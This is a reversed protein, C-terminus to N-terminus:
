FLKIVDKVAIIIMFGFMLVVGVMQCYEEVKKPAPRRFIWEYLSFLIHGGDLPLIPILNFVGLNMSIVIFLYLLTYFSTKAATTIAQTAGIPGSVSSLAFRGTLMGTLSDWVMKVSSLSRYWSQKVINLFSTEERYVKFDPEGFAAGEESFALFMVDYIPVTEGNRIVTMDLMVVQLKEEGYEVVQNGQMSIEYVVEQGTHVSVNGVKIITDGVMLGSQSSLAGENFEAVTNSALQIEGNADRGSIVLVFTLLFGLIINMLPGAVLIIIKMWAPKNKYSRPDDDIVDEQEQEQTQEDQPKDATPNSMDGEGQMACFGGIPFLRLSYKIETKKSQWKLVKPGMGIAFELVKVGCIRAALYHGLEHVFILIGFLFLALLVYLITIVIEM